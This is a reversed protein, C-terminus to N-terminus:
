SFLLLEVETLLYCCCYFYRLVKLSISSSFSVGAGAVVMTALGLLRDLLMRLFDILMDGLGGVVEM